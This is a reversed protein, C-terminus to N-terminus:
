GRVAQNKKLTRKGVRRDMIALMRVLGDESELSESISNSLFEDLASGFDGPAYLGQESSEKKVEQHLEAYSKDSGANKRRSVEAYGKDEVIFSM